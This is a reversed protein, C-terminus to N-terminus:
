KALLVKALEEIVTTPLQSLDDLMVHRKYFTKVSRTQIGIGVVEINAKEADAIVQRLHRTQASHDGPCAPAGDSLVLLLHRDARQQKLRAAAIQVSEGDVNEQLWPHAARETLHAIRSKVSVSMREAFSKFVPIYLPENRAYRVRAREVLKEARLQSVQAPTPLEIQDM